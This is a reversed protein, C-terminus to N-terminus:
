DHVAIHNRSVRYRLYDSPTVGTFARFDHNFHAQDFYGCSLAVESWEVHTTAELVGLVRQFRRVRTFLKPTLGVQARFVEAFRRASLGTENTIDRVSRAPSAEFARVAHRVAPHPDLSGRSQALLTRELVRFQAEPTKSELLQERVISATRRWLTDLSVDLDQLEGAPPGFFPFGGGPKFRAAIVSFPRSTDLTMPATHAGSIVSGIRHDQDLSIVLDMTGTPLLREEPHPGASGEYWWLFDVAGSLPPRPVYLRFAM